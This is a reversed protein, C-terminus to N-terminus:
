LVQADEGRVCRSPAGAQHEDTHRSEPSRGVGGDGPKWAERQRCVPIEPGLSLRSPAKAGLVGGDERPRVDAVDGGIHGEVHGDGGHCQGNRAGAPGMCGGEGAYRGEAHQGEPVDLHQGDARWTMGGVDKAASIRGAADVADGEETEDGDAAAPGAGIGIQIRAPVGADGGYQGGDLDIQGGDARREGDEPGGQAGSGEANGYRPLEGDRCLLSVLGRKGARPM